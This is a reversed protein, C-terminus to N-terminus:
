LDQIFKYLNLNFKADDLANHANDQKPYKESCKIWKLKKELPINSNSQVKKQTACAPLYTMVWNELKEDLMQKLDRTYMPYRKPLNIMKGFLQAFVVWDYSGFYSYFQIDNGKEACIADFYEDTFGDWHKYKEGDPDLTFEMIETAIERNTKGHWAILNKLTKYSFPEVLDWHYERSYHDRQLLEDYIPRLVNERLWYVKRIGDIGRDQTDCRNWAEKLNFDKSIAYYQRNDNCVVGISILDIVAKTEGYKIGLFRKDQKGEVFETDFFYKKM